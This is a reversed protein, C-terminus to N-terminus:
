FVRFAQFASLTWGWRAPAAPFQARTTAFSGGARGTPTRWQLDAQAFWAASGEPHDLPATIRAVRLIGRGELPLSLGLEVTRTAADPGFAAGLPDGQSSFDAPHASSATDWPRRPAAGAVEFAVDWGEWVAQLGATTRGGDLTLVTGGSVGTRGVRISAGRAQLARALPPVRAEVEALSRTLARDGRLSAAALRAEVLPGFAGRVRAGLLDPRESTRGDAEAALRAERDSLWSPIPQDGPLRGFFAEGTWRTAGLSVPPTAVSLRPFPRAEAGLLDGSLLGSGWDLPTQELAARWGSEAQYALAGRQLIGLIRGHDSLGLLTASFSWGGRTVRGQVGLGWGRTGSGLGEGGVLPARPGQGDAGGWGVDLFPLSLSPLPEDGQVWALRAQRLSAAGDQFLPAQASVSLAALGILALRPNM